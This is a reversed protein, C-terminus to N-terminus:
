TQRLFDKYREISKGQDESFYSLISNTDVWTQSKCSLYYKLSSYPYLEAPELRDKPNLHIYRSTTVLQKDTEVLTAKYRDQFLHGVRGYKNNMYKSHSTCLSQILKEIGRYNNNCLLLHFHNPMLCYAVVTIINSYDKINYDIGTAYMELRYLFRSFDNEEYFIEQRNVGRNFIHYYAGKIYIKTRNSSM